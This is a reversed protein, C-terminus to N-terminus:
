KASALQHDIVKKFEEIPFAGKLSVGNVLYGPTGTFGFKEAETRDADLIKKVEDGKADEKAKKVNAGVRKAAEDIFKAGDRNLKDQEDFIIHKYKIAKEKDQLAIAEYMESAPRAMPHIREIPFDKFIVKVKGAYAELVQNMTQHGKRCYPCQFDSYEIITIPGTKSGQFARNDTIEPKKPNKYEEERMKEEDDAMKKEEDARAKSAAENVVELFKKPDKQIVSYLIEPNDEMVKKLQPASPACSSLALAATVSTISILAKKFGNEFISAKLSSGGHKALICKELLGINQCLQFFWCTFFRMAVGPAPM